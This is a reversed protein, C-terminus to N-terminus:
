LCPRQFLLGAPSRSRHSGPANPLLLWLFRSGLTDPPSILVWPRPSIAGSCGGFSALGPPLFFFSTAVCLKFVQGLGRPPLWLWGSRGEWPAARRGGRRWGPGPTRPRQDSLSTAVTVRPGLAAPCIARERSPTQATVSHGAQSSSCPEGAGPRRGRKRPLGGAEGRPPCGGPAGTTVARGPEVQQGARGLPQSGPCSPVAPAPALGPHSPSLRAGRPRGSTCGLVCLGCTLSHHAFSGGFAGGVGGATINVDQRGGAEPHVCGPRAPSPAWSAPPTGSTWSRLSLSRPSRARGASARAEPVQPPVSGRRRSCALLLAPRTSQLWLHACTSRPGPCLRSVAPRPQAAWWRAHPPALLGRKRLGAHAEPGIDTM